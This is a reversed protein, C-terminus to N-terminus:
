EEEKLQILPLEGIVLTTRQQVDFDEMTELHQEIACLVEIKTKKEFDTCTCPDSYWSENKLRGCYPCYDVGPPRWYSMRWKIHGKLKTFRLYLGGNKTNPLDFSTDLIQIMVSDKKGIHMHFPTYEVWTTHGNPKFKYIMKMLEKKTCTAEKGCSYTFDEQLHDEFKGCIPCCPEGTYEAGYRISWRDEAIRQFITWRGRRGKEGDFPEKGKFDVLRIKAINDVKM